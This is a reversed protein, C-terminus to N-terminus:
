RYSTKNDKGSICSHLACVWVHAHVLAYALKIAMKLTLWNDGQNQNTIKSFNQTNKWVTLMSIVRHVQVTEENKDSM